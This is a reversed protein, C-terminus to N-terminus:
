TDQRNRWKAHSSQSSVYGADCAKPLSGGSKRGYLIKKQKQLAEARLSEYMDCSSECIERRSKVRRAASTAAVAPQRGSSNGPCGAAGASLCCAGNGPSLGEGSLWSSTCILM